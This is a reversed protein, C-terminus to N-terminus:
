SDLGTNDSVKARIPHPIFPKKEGVKVKVILMEDSKKTEKTVACNVFDLERGMFAYQDLLMLVTTAIERDRKSRIYPSLEECMEELDLCWTKLIGWAAPILDNNRMRTSITLSFFAETTLKPMLCKNLWGVLSCTLGGLLDMFVNDVHFKVPVDSYERHYLSAPNPIGDLYSQIAVASNANREVCILRTTPLIYGNKIGYKIDACDDSPNCLYCRMTNSFVIRHQEAKSKRDSYVRM